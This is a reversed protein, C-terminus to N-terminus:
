TVASRQAIKRLVTYDEGFKCLADCHDRLNDFSIFALSIDTLDNRFAPRTLQAIVERERQTPAVLYFNCTCDPISRALDEMRLIGSYISTSKEIEFASVIENTGRKLWIVDILSTTDMVEVSWDMAPLAPITLLSFSQGDCSRHRDNRAVFVDYNLARGIKILLYQIQTHESEAQEEALVDAHRAKAVKEAKTKEAQLVADANGDVVLRGMGIEFLLGAFAGLDKSLEDRFENNTQVIVERMALYSEWSGLKKKDHFLANFGNVMATNFPPVLTPHLFYIINAVAPGLGKIQASALRSIETLVQDERSANLCAELFAAFKRKNTENEYIDPIRLKPKWFFPHAAGEFVQKQETIANLVVELPSGKFDTGFTGAVISDVTDRVGRRISRFAKMREEGGIFWTNYVSEPDSKYQTILRALTTKDM